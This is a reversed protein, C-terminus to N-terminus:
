GMMLKDDTTEVSIEERLWWTGGQHLWYTHKGRTKRMKKGTPFFCCLKETIKKEKNREIHGYAKLM